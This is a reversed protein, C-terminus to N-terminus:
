PVSGPSKRNATNCVGKETKKLFQGKQPLIIYCTLGQQLTLFALGPCGGLCSRFSSPDEKSAPFGLSISLAHDQMHELLVPCSFMQPRFRSVLTIKPGQSRRPPKPLSQCPAIRYLSFNHFSCLIPIEPYPCTLADKFWVRSPGLWDAPLVHRHAAKSEDEPGHGQGRHIGPARWKQTLRIGQSCKAPETLWTPPAQGM